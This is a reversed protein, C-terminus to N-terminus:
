LKRFVKMHYKVVSVDVFSWGFINKKRMRRLSAMKSDLTAGVLRLQETNRNYMLLAKELTSNKEM